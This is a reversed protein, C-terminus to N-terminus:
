QQLTKVFKEIRDIAKAIHEVSYAYSIRAFGEGCDGFASGPVIAVGTENLLRECFEESTMGYGSINPYVYFAGEPDFCEIGIGRLGGVIYRRRRNYEARMMAVDEDGNKMAEIAAFQSMTPACMIAYQHIKLMQKSIPAPACTYGMRWGTMAYAKSFGSAIVTRERMGDLQAISFHERGYTLEAYIEDSLVMIDTGRLVEAIPELDERTMIAGTPNNPYPLVLLKTKPTIAAKLEEATLKFKNEEKTNIIVPVGGALEAIPGYCVFAPQPIIVEDGPNVLARTTMDIAESGGVTVIIETKADYELTFRRKMYDSIANRLDMTGANSTYYTKGRELSEMAAVRIHWPTVFDPEGVTLSIVDKRGELLDFYKRIGSPKIDQVTQSLIKAYDM